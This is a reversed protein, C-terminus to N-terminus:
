RKRDWVWEAFLGVKIRYREEAGRIIVERKVLDDLIRRGDPLTDAKRADLYRDGRSGALCTSLVTLVSEKPFNSVDADGPTILNDFQADTLSKDGRTLMEAVEDVDAPGILAKRRSNMHEILRNCFLQIYYPSRATLELIREVSDGRYPSEGDQSRVPETILDTASQQDLYSVREQRAVQFENPFEGLFAPMLDNGVVVSSFLGEELISKWVKMFGRSLEGRRIAAYAITFEDILVVLRWSRFEEHRRMQRRMGSMYEHFIIQPAGGDRFKSLVPEAIDLMAFGDDTLDDFRDYFKRAIKYLFYADDPKDGLDGVSLRAALIRPDPNAELRTQLHLLVSSKGARKQGYLVISKTQTQAISDVLINLLPDRGYFLAPDQVAAGEAFSAYPNDLSTWNTGDLLRVTISEPDTTISTGGRVTFEIQYRLTLVQELISHDTVKLEFACPHTEGDGLSQAVDLTRAPAVYDTPNELIHLKVDGAPSRRPQNAVTLQVQVPTETDHAQSALVLEVDLRSPEAARQVSTFHTTLQEQLRRLLPRLYEMGLATPGSEFDSIQQRIEAQIQSELWEQEVYSTQDLYTRLKGLIETSIAQLRQTDLATAGDHQRGIEDEVKALARLPEPQELVSRLSKRIADRQTRFLSLARTWCTVFSDQNQVGPKEGIYGNLETFLTQRLQKDTWTRNVIEHRVRESGGALMLLGLLVQRRLPGGQLVMNLCKEFRPPESLQKWDRDAFTLIFQRAKLEGLGDWGGLAVAEAYYARTVDGPSREAACFDGMAAAFYRLSKTFREDDTRGVDRLIRAASLNYEAREGPRRVGMSAILRELDQIDREGPGSSLRAPPVGKYECNDLHFALLVSVLQHSYHIDLADAHLLEDLRSTIGIEARDLEAAIAVFEKDSPDIRLLRESATKAKTWERTARYSWILRKLLGAQLRPQTQAALMGELIRAAEDHKGIDKCITAMVNQHAEIEEAVPTHARLLELGEDGRRLRQLLWALSRVARDTNDGEAIARRYLHEAADLDRTITEAHYAQQYSSGSWPAHRNAQAKPRRPSDPRQAPVRRPVSQQRLASAQDCGLGALRRAEAVLAHLGGHNPHNRLGVEAIRIADEFRGADIARQAALLQPPVSQPVPVSPGSGSAPAAWEARFAPAFEPALVRLVQFLHEETPAAESVLPELSAEPAQGWATLLYLASRLAVRRTEADTHVAGAFAMAATGPLPNDKLLCMLLGLLRDDHHQAPDVVLADGLVTAASIHDGLRVHLVALDWAYRGGLTAASTMWEIAQRAAAAGSTGSLTLLAALHRAPLYDCRDALSLLLRAIELLRRPERIKLAYAHKQGCRALEGEVLPVFSPDLPFAADRKFVIPTLAM